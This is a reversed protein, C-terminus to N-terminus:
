TCDLSPLIQPADRCATSLILCLCNMAVCPHQLCVGNKKKKKKKLVCWYTSDYFRECFKPLLKRITRIVSTSGVTHGTEDGVIAPPIFKHWPNSSIPQSWNPYQPYVNHIELPHNLTSRLWAMTSLPFPHLPIKGACPFKCNYQEITLEQNPPKTTRSSVLELTIDLRGIEIKILKQIGM